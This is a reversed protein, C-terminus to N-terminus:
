CCGKNHLCNRDLMCTLKTRNVVKNSILAWLLTFGSLCCNSYFWLKKCLKLTARILTSKNTQKPLTYSPTCSPPNKKPCVAWIVEPHLQVLYKPQIRPFLRLSKKNSLNSNYKFREGFIRNGTSLFISM